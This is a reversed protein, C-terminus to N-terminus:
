ISGLKGPIADGSTDQTLIVAKTNGEEMTHTEQLIVSSGFIIRRADAM